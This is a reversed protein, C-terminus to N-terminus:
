PRAKGLLGISEAAASRVEADKDSSLATALASPIRNDRFKCLAKASAARVGADKDSALATMLAAATPSQATVTQRWDTDRDIDNTKEILEACKRRVDPASDSLVAKSLPSNSATYGLKSLAEAASIRVSESSDGALAACLANYEPGAHFVPDKVHSTCAALFLMAAFLLAPRIFNM